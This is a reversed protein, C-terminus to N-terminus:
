LQDVEVGWERKLGTRGAETLRVARAGSVRKLWGQEFLWNAVAAGLAGALHDQRESWDLCTRAFHRRGKHLEQEDIGRAALWASGQPTLQYTQEDLTLLGQEVLAQTVAVGLKGALHDYCTRAFCLERYEASDGRKTTLAPPAIMALAELARAVEANKLRYYRHRGTQRVQLLGGDVLKNLHASTTQATIHARHALESAPLAQGGLLASLIAARTPDGILAAVASLDPEPHM